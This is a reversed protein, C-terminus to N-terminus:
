PKVEESGRIPHNALLPWCIITVSAAKQQQDFCDPAAVARQKLVAGGVLNAALEGAPERIATTDYPNMPNRWQWTDVGRSMVAEGFM